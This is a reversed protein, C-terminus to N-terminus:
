QGPAVHGARPKLGIGAYRVYDDAAIFRRGDVLLPSPSRGRLLEPVRAYEAWKTVLLIADTAEIAADLGEAFVVAELDVGAETLANRANCAAIPDHCVVRAGRVLLEPIIRLAPSERVDDTDPKFALGLVTVTRGELDPLHTVLHSVLRHPQDANISLVAQLLSAPAGNEEAQAVLAKVDKPFCSGGFGCGPWLFSTLSVPHRSGDDSRYVLHRMQHVGELVDAVDVGDMRECYGAIENSFSILSALLSNSAYKIMEATTPNTRILPVGDFSQYLDAIIQRSQDDIGGVVIRDPSMFDRVAVGESLFEPNVGLGFDIGARKGSATELAQKVAGVTTGPIVTSKVAVVLYRDRSRIREGIEKAAQLVYTCISGAATSRRGWM